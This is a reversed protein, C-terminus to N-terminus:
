EGEYARQLRAIDLKEMQMMTRMVREAAPRNQSHLMEGLVTPVVQWTVGFRDRLWGCQFHQGGGEALKTWLRDVEDQTECHIFFSIAPSFTFGQMPGGNLAIFQQGALEFTVSMLAGEPGPGAATYRMEDIIRAGDFVSMYFQAAAEADKDFWLFSTIKQM